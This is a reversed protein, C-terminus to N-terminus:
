GGAPKGSERLIALREEAYRLAGYENYFGAWKMLAELVEKKIRKDREALVKEPSKARSLANDLGEIYQVQDICDMNVAERLSEVVAAIEADRPDKAPPDSLAAKADSLRAGLDGSCGKKNAHEKAARFLERLAADKRALDIDKQKSAAERKKDGESVEHNFDYFKKEFYDARKKESDREALIANHCKSCHYDHSVDHVCNMLEDIM